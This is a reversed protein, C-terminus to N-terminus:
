SMKKMMKTMMTTTELVDHMGDKSLTASCTFWPVKSHIYRRLTDLRAYEVRFQKGWLSILHAEDIFVMALKQSFKPTEIILRMQDSAAQEPSMLIHSFQGEMMKKRNAANNSDANLFFPTGGLNRIKAEQETGISNVPLIVLTVSGELLLSVSQLVTSKGFATKAVLIMDSKHYLVHTIAEIQGQRPWYGFALVIALQVASMCLPSGKEVNAIAARAVELKALGLEMGERECVICM